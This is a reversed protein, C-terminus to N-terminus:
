THGNVVLGLAQIGAYLLNFSYIHKIPDPGTKNEDAVLPPNEQLSDLGSSIGTQHIIGMEKM